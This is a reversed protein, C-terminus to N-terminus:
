EEQEKGGMYDPSKAYADAWDALDEFPGIYFPPKEKWEEPMEVGTDEFIEEWGERMKNLAEPSMKSRVADAVDSLWNRLWEADVVVWKAM